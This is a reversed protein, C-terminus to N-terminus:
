LENQTDCLLSWPSLICLSPELFFLFLPFAFLGCLNFLWITHQDFRGCRWHCKPRCRTRWERQTYMHHQMVFLLHTPYNKKITTATIMEFVVIAIALSQRWRCSGHFAICKCNFDILTDLNMKPNWKGNRKPEAKVISWFAIQQNVNRVISTAAAVYIFHTHWTPEGFYLLRRFFNMIWIHCDIAISAKNEMASLTNDNSMTIIAVRHHTSQDFITDSICYDSLNRVITYMYCGSWFWNSHTCRCIFRFVRGCSKLKCEGCKNGNNNVICYCFASSVSFLRASYFVYVRQHKLARSGWSRRLEQFDFLFDNKHVNSKNIWWEVTPM